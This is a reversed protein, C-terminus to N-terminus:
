RFRNSQGYVIIGRNAFCLNFRDYSVAVFAQAGPYYGSPNHILLEQKDTDFGVIVILHGGKQKVIPNLDRITNAVSAIVLDGATLADVISEVTMSTSWSANVGQQKALYEVCGKYFLGEIEGDKLIYAGYEVSDKALKITQNKEHTFYEVIMNVCAMGCVSNAWFAYEEKSIAGSAEWLPDNIAEQPQAIFTNALEKSAWQSYYPVEYRLKKPQDNKM